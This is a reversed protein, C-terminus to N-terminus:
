VQRLLGVLKWYFCLQSITQHQIIVFHLMISLNNFVGCDPPSSFSTEEEMVVECWLLVKSVFHVFVDM